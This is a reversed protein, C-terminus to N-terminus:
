YNIGCYIEGFSDTQFGLKLLGRDIADVAGGAGVGGM